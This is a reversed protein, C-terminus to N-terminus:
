IYDELIHSPTPLDTGLGEYNARIWKEGAKFGAHRLSNLFDWDTNAASLASLDHFFHDDKIIHLNIRRMNPDNIKGEEILRNILYIARIERILCSNFTIETFRWNIDERQQPVHPCRSKTLQVVVIDKTTCENILPFIAPNAIFGGDWYFEGNVEVAQFLTPLCSTAMLADVTIEPNHFIKIKGTEVHTAALFLRWRDTDQIRGYNFFDGIFTKFPNHNFPNLDYPSFQSLIPNMFASLIIGPSTRLNYDGRAKGIPDALLPAIQLGLEHIGRWYDELSEIAGTNGGKILGQVTAAANMGGASTGSFGEIELREDHLLAETVGWAFAGHSGGGQLALAIRKTKM